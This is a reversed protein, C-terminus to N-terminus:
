PNNNLNVYTIGQVIQCWKYLKCFTPFVWPPSHNKTFNCTKAQLKVLLLVQGHTNKLNKFQVFLVLGHLADCISDTIIWKKLLFQVFLLLSVFNAIWWAPFTIEGWPQAKMFSHISSYIFSSIFSHSPHFFNIIRM